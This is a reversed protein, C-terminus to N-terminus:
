HPHNGISSCQLEYEDMSPHSQDECKPHLVFDNLNLHNMDEGNPYSIIGDMIPHNPDNMLNFVALGSDGNSRLKTRPDEPSHAYKYQSIHPTPQSKHSFAIKPSNVM